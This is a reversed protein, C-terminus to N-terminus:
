WLYVYPFSKKAHLEGKKVKKLPAKYFVRCFRFFNDWLQQGYM